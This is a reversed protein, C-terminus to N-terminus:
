GTSKECAPVPNAKLSLLHLFEDLEKKDAPHYHIITYYGQYGSRMLAEHRHTGDAVFLQPCTKQGSFTTLLPPPRWGRRIEKMKHLVVLEFLLGPEYIRKDNEPGLIRKMADLPLFVPEAQLPFCSQVRNFYKPNRAVTLVYETFYNQMDSKFPDQFIVELHDLPHHYQHFFIGKLAFFGHNLWRQYTNLIDKM